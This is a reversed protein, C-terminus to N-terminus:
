IPEEVTARAEINQWNTGSERYDKWAKLYMNSLVPITIGCFTTIAGLIAALNTWAAEGNAAMAADIVRFLNSTCFWVYCVLATLKVALMIRVILRAEDIARWMRRWLSM